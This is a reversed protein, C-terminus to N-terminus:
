VCVYQHMSVCAFVRLHLYLLCVQQVSGSTLCFQVCVRVTSNDARYGPPVATVNTPPFWIPRSSVPSVNEARVSLWSQSAVSSLRAWSICLLHLNVVGPELQSSDSVKKHSIIEMRGVPCFCSLPLHSASNENRENRDSVDDSWSASIRPDTNKMSFCLNQYCFIIFFVNPMEGCM